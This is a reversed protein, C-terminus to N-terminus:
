PQSKIPPTFLPKELYFVLKYHLTDKEEPGAGPWEVAKMEPPSIEKFGPWFVKDKLIDLRFNMLTETQTGKQYCSVTLSGGDRLTPAPDHQRMEVYQWWITGAPTLKALRELKKAWLIRNKRISLITERQNRKDALKTSLGTMEILKLDLMIKVNELDQLEGTITKVQQSMWVVAILGLALVVIAVLGLLFVPLPTGEMTRYESPLLNVKIM